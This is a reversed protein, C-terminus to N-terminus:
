AHAPAHRALRQEKLSAAHISLLTTFIKTKRSSECNTSDLGNQINTILRPIINTINLKEQESTKAQFVWILEDVVLMTTDWIDSKEGYNNYITTAVKAWTTTLFERLERPLEEAIIKKRIATTITQKANGANITNKEIISNALTSKPAAELKIDEHTANKNTKISNNMRVNNLKIKYGALKNSNKPSNTTQVKSSLLKLRDTTNKLHQISSNMKQQKEKRFLQSSALINSFITTDDIFENTIRSVIANFERYFSENNKADSNSLLRAADTLKDILQDAPHPDDSFYTEDLIAVKLIPIQLKALLAKTKNTLGSDEFIIDFMMRVVDITDVDAHGRADPVNLNLLRDFDGLVKSSINFQGSDNDFLLADINRQMLSLASVIGNNNNDASEKTSPTDADQDARLLLEPIFHFVDEKSLRSNSTQLLSDVKKEDAYEAANCQIIISKM